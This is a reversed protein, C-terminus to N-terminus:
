LNDLGIISGVYNQCTILLAPPATEIKQCFRAALDVNRVHDTLVVGTTATDHLKIEFVGNRPRSTIPCIIARGSITNFARDSLVLCPRRGAQEHGAVPSLELWVIDGAAPLYSARVKAATTTM